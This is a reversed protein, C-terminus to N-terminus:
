PRSIELPSTFFIPPFNYFFNHHEFPLFSIGSFGRPPQILRGETGALILISIQQNGDENQNQISSAMIVSAFMEHIYTNHIEIEQIVKRLCHMTRPGFGASYSSSYVRMEENCQEM